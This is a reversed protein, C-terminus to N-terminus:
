AMAAAAAIEAIETTIAAQRAENFSLKLEDMLDSANTSANRMALMRSSHESAKTELLAQWLRIEIMRPLLSELVAEPSPEFLTLASTAPPAETEEAPEPATAPLLQDAQPRNTLTSIFRPYTMLVRDVRGSSFEDILVKAIPLVDAYHPTDPLDVFSALMTGGFRNVGTQAQKGVVVYSAEGPQAEVTERTFRLVNTNMAGALGRDTTFVVVAVNKVPREALLPQGTVDDSAGAAAAMLRNAKTAYDRSRAVAEKARRMKTASVMEMARTIQRTNQVSKIRRNIERTNPM